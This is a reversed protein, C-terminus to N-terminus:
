KSYLNDSVRVKLQPSQDPPLLSDTSAVLVQCLSLSLLLPPPPSPTVSDKDLKVDPSLSFVARMVDLLYLSLMYSRSLNRFLSIFAGDMAM